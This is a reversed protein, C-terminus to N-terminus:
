GSRNARRPGLRSIIAGLMCFMATVLFATNLGTAYAVSSAIFPGLANGLFRASNLIGLGFGKHSRRQGAGSLLFAPGASHFFCQGMRLVTLVEAQRFLGQLLIVGSGLMFLSFFHKRGFLRTTVPVSFAYAFTGAATVLGTYAILSDGRIGAETLYLPAIPTLFGYAAQISTMTAFDKWLGSFDKWSIKERSAESKGTAEIRAWLVFPIALALVLGGVLFCARFGFAVAMGAGLTPGLLFGVNQVSQQYGIARPLQDPDTSSAIIAMVVTSTGGLIGQILRLVLVQYVNTSLSTLSITLTYVVLIRLLMKKGGLRDSLMGWIPQTLAMSSSSVLQVVGSWLAAEELKEVALEQNIFLTLFSM